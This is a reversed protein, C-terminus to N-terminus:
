PTVKNTMEGATGPGEPKRRPTDPGARKWKRSPRLKGRKKSFLVPAGTGRSHM